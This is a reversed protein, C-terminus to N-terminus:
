GKFIGHRAAPEPRKAIFRYLAFEIIRWFGVSNPVNPLLFNLFNSITANCIVFCANWISQFRNSVESHVITAIQNDTVYLEQLEHYRILESIDLTTLSNYSLNLQVTTDPLDNPIEVLDQHSCDVIRFEDSCKCIDPCIQKISELFHRGFVLSFDIFIVIKTTKRRQWSKWRIKWIM